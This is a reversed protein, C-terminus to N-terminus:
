GYGSCCRWPTFQAMQSLTDDIRQHSTGVITVGYGERALAIAIAQGIGSSGGTVIAVKTPLRDINSMSILM